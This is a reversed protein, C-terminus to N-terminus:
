EDEDLDSYEDPDVEEEEQEFVVFVKGGEAICIDPRYGADLHEALAENMNKPIFGIFHEATHVEVANPDFQNHPDRKLFLEDGDRLNRFAVQAEIPRYNNGVIPYSPM